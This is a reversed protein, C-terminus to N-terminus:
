RVYRKVKFKVKGSNPAVFWHFEAMRGNSLEAFGIMKKWDSKKTIPFEDILYDIVDIQRKVGKGAIVHVGTIRTGPVIKLYENQTGLGRVEYLKKVFIDRSKGSLLQPIFIDSSAVIDIKMKVSKTANDHTKRSSSPKKIINPVTVGSISQLTEPILREYENGEEVHAGTSYHWWLHMPATNEGTIMNKVKFIKGDLKACNICASPEAIFEYEDYGNAIYPQKQAETAVRAGATVTLRKAESSLIELTWAQYKYENM